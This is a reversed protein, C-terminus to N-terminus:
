SKLIDNNFKKEAGVSSPPGRGPFLITGDTQSLVKQKLNNLLIKKSYQTDTEGIMGATLSEGTFMILGIKYVMSDSSHGPCSFYEVDFGAINIHGDGKLIFLECNKIDCNACYIVPSYIKLLTNLGRTINPHSHTLLVACLKYGGSEIQDIMQTTVEGPDILVAQKYEENILLYCNSFNKYCM